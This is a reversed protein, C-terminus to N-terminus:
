PECFITRLFEDHGRKRAIGLLYAKGGVSDKQIWESLAGLIAKQPDTPEAEQDRWRRVQTHSTGTFEAIERYSFDREVTCYELKTHWAM